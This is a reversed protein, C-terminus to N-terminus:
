VVENVHSEHIKLKGGDKTIVYFKNGIVIRYPTSGCQKLVAQEAENLRKDAAKKAFNASGYEKLLGVLPNMKVEFPLTNSALWSQQGHTETDVICYGQCESLYKGIIGVRAHVVKDGPKFCMPVCHHILWAATGDETIVTYTDRYKGTVCLNQRVVEGVKGFERNYVLRPLM